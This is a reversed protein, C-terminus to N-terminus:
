EIVEDARVLFSEPVTLEMAKATRLNVVLEFKVPREIPLDSVNGGKLVKDVFSAARRYIDPLDAAYALFGGAAAFEAYGSVSPLRASAALAAIETRRAFLLPTQGVYLAQMGDRKARAVAPEFDAPSRVEFASLRM